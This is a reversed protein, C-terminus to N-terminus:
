SQLVTSTRQLRKVVGRTILKLAIESNLGGLIDLHKVLIWRQGMDILALAIDNHSLGPFNDPNNIIKRVDLSQYNKRDVLNVLIKLKQLSQERDTKEEQGGEALHVTEQMIENGHEEAILAHSQWFSDSETTANKDWPEPEAKEGIYATMLIYHDDIDDKKCVVTVKSTSEPKRGMVFRTPGMRGNRNAYFITDRNTTEVCSSTGIERGIDIEEVFFPRGNANIHRFVRPLLEETNKHLHSHHRDFVVEGSALAGLRPLRPQSRYERRSLAGGKVLGIRPRNFTEKM